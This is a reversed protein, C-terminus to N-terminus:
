YGVETGDPLTISIAQSGDYTYTNEGVVITLANPNKLTEPIDSKDAKGDWATVKAATIGDLATKNAHTHSAAELTTVRDALGDDGSTGDYATLRGNLISCEYTKGSEIDLEGIDVGEPHTVETATDGSTFIFHYEKAVGDQGAALTYTLSALTGFVYLTGPQLEMNVTDGSVEVLPYDTTIEQTSSGDYEIGVRQTTITLANPNKLTEPIDTKDAKGDIAAKVVKNQVANESESSLETDITPLETKIEVESLVKEGSLLSLTSNDYTMGDAKGEAAEQAATAATQAGAAAAQADEAISQVSEAAELAEAAVKQAAAAEAEITDWTKADTPTIVYSDPKKRAKVTVQVARITRGADEATVYVWADVCYNCTVDQGLLEDPIRCVVVGDELTSETVMATSENLRGWHVMPAETLELGQICLNIGTDWQWVSCRAYISWPTFAVIITKDM